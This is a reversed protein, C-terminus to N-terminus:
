EWAMRLFTFTVVFITEHLKANMRMMKTLFVDHGAELPGDWLNILTARKFRAM